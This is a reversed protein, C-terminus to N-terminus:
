GTPISKKVRASKKKTQPRVFSGTQTDTVSSSGAAKPAFVIRVTV